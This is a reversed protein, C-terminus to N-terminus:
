PRVRPWDLRDAPLGARLTERARQLASNAAPVSTRLVGASEVASHSLVDRLVFAAQQRPPLLRVATQLALEVTERELVFALPDDPAVAEGAVGDPGRRARVDHCANTAIRYLWARPCGSTLTHRSRWARLLADQLADEADSAGLMRQCHRHLESRHREILAETLV